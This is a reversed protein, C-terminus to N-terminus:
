QPGLYIGTAIEYGEEDVEGPPALSTVIEQQPLNWLRAQKAMQYVHNPQEKILLSYIENEWYESNSSSIQNAIARVRPHPGALLVIDEGPIKGLQSVDYVKGVAKGRYLSIDPHEYLYTEREQYPITIIQPNKEPDIFTIKKNMYAMIFDILHNFWDFFVEYMNSSKRQHEIPLSSVYQQYFFHVKSEFSLIMESIFDEFGSSDTAIIIYGQNFIKENEELSLKSLHVFRDRIEKLAYKQFVLEFFRHFINPDHNRLEYRWTYSSSMFRHYLGDAQIVISEGAWTRPDEPLEDVRYFGTRLFQNAQEQNLLPPETIFNDSVVLFVDFDLRPFRIPEQRWPGAYYKGTARAEDLTRAWNRTDSMIPDFAVIYDKNRYPDASSLNQRTSTIFDNSVLMFTYTWPSTIVDPSFLYQFINHDLVKDFVEKMKEWKNHSGWRSKTGDAGSNTTIINTGNIHNFKLVTGEFGAYIQPVDRSVLPDLQVEINGPEVRYKEVLNQDALQTINIKDIDEYEPVFGSTGIVQIIKKSSIGDDMTVWGTGRLINPASDPYYEPNPFITSVKGGIENTKFGESDLKIAAAIESKTAPRSSSYM